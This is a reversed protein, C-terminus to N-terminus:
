IDGLVLCTPLPPQETAEPVDPRYLLAHFGPRHYPVDRGAGVMRRYTRSCHDGYWLGFADGYLVVILFMMMVFGPRVHVPFGLLRFM